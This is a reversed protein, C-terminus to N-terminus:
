SVLSVYIVILCGSWIKGTASSFDLSIKIRNLLEWWATIFYASFTLHNIKNVCLFPMILMILSICNPCTEQYYFPVLWYAGYNNSKHLVFYLLSTHNSNKSRFELREKVSLLKWSTFEFKLKVAFLKSKLLLKTKKYFRETHDQNLGLDMNLGTTINECVMKWVARM